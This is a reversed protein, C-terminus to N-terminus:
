KQKENGSACSIGKLTKTYVKGKYTWQYHFDFIDGPNLGITTFGQIWDGPSFVQDDALMSWRYGVGMAEWEKLWQSKTKVPLKKGDKVSYRWDAVRYSVEEQSENKIITGFVCYKLVGEILKKPLGRSDYVATVYDPHLQILQLSFGNEESQWYKLGTGPDTFQATEAVPQSQWLLMGVFFLVGIFTKQYTWIPM